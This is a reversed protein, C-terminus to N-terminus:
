EEGNVQRAEVTDMASKCNTTECRLRAREAKVDIGAPLNLECRTASQYMTQLPNFNGSTNFTCNRWNNDKTPQAVFNVFYQIAVLIGNCGSTPVSFEPVMILFQLCLQIYPEIPVRVFRLSQINDIARVDCIVGMNHSDGQATDLQQTTIPDNFYSCIMHGNYHQQFFFGNKYMQHDGWKKCVDLADIVNARKDNSVAIEEITNDKDNWIARWQHERGHSTCNISQGDVNSCGVDRQTYNSGPIFNKSWDCLGNPANTGQVIQNFLTEYVYFTDNDCNYPFKNPGSYLSNSLTGGKKADFVYTYWMLLMACLAKFECQNNAALNLFDDRYGPYDALGNQLPVEIALRLAFESVNKKHELLKLIYTTFLNYSASNNGQSVSLMADIKERTLTIGRLALGMRHIQDYRSPKNGRALFVYLGSDPALNLAGSEFVCGSM